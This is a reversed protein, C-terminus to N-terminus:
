LTIILAQPIFRSIIDQSLNFFSLCTDLILADSSIVHSKSQLIVDPNIVLEINTQFRFSKSIEHIKHKLNRSNSVPEDLYFIVQEVQYDNLVKFILTLALDTQEILKYTGRLGALDRIMGNSDCILTGGSLAVELTIILNFGDIFVTQHDLHSLPLQRALRDHRQKTTCVCRKLADRQRNSFQYRDSVFKVVNLLPYDRDLLWQIEEKAKSLRLQENKSFWKYDKEDYGRKKSMERGGNNM